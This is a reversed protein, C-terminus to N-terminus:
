RKVDNRDIMQIDGEGRTEAGRNKDESAGASSSACLLKSSLSLRMKVDNISYKKLKNTIILYLGM